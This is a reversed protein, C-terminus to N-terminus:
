EQMRSCTSARERLTPFRRRFIAGLGHCQGRNTGCLPANTDIQRGPRFRLHMEPPSIKIARRLLRGRPRREQRRVFCPSRVAIPKRFIAASKNGRATKEANQKAPIQMLRRLAKPKMVPWAAFRRKRRFGTLVRKMEVQGMGFVQRQDSHGANGLDAYIYFANISVRLFYGLPEKGRVIQDPQMFRLFCVAGPAKELKPGAFFGNQFRLSRAKGAAQRGAFQRPGRLATIQVDAGSISGSGGQAPRKRGDFRPM